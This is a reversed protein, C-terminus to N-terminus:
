GGFGLPKLLMLLMTVGFPIDKLPDTSAAERNQHWHAILLLCAQEYTPPSSQDNPVKTVRTVYDTAVETLHTLYSDEFDGDIRLHLKVLDLNVM